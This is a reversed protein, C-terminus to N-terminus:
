LMLFFVFKKAIARTSASISSLKGHQLLPFTFFEIKHAYTIYPHGGLTPRVLKVLKYKELSNNQFLSNLKRSLLGILRCKSMNRKHELCNTRTKINKQSCLPQIDM